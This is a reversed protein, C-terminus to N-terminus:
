WPVCVLESRVDQRAQTERERYLLSALALTGLHIAVALGPLSIVISAPLLATSM